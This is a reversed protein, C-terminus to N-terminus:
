SAAGTTSAVLAAMSAASAWYGVRALWVVTPGCPRGRGFAWAPPDVMDAAAAPGCGLRSPRAARLREGAVGHDGDRHQQEQDELDARDEVGEVDAQPAPVDAGARDIEAPQRVVRVRQGVRDEM